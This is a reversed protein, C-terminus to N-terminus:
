ETPVAIRDALRDDAQFFVDMGLQGSKTFHFLGKVFSDM